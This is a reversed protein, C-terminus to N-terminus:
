YVYLKICEVEKSFDLLRILYLTEQESIVTTVTHYHITWTSFYLLFYM